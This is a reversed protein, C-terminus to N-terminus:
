LFQRMQTDDVEHGYRQWHSNQIIFHIVEELIVEVSQNRLNTFEIARIQLLLSQYTVEVMDISM